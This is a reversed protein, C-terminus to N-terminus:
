DLESDFYLVKKRSFEVFIWLLRTGVNDHSSYIWGSERGLGTALCAEGVRGGVAVSASIINLSGSILWHAATDPILM